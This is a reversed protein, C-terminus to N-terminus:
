RAWVASTVRCSVMASQEDILGFNVKAFPKKSKSPVVEYITKTASAITTGSKGSFDCRVVPDKVAMANDNLVTFGIVAIAGSVGKSWNNIELRIGEAPPDLGADRRAAATAQDRKKNAQIIADQRKRWEEASAGAAKAQLRDYHSSFGLRRAEADENEM